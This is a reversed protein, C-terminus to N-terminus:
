ARVRSSPKAPIPEFPYKLKGDAIAANRLAVEWDTINKGNNKLRSNQNYSVHDMFSRLWSERILTASPGPNANNNDSM